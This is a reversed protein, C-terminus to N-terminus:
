HVRQLRLDIVKAVTYITDHNPNWAQVHLRFFRGFGGEKKFGGPTTEPFPRWDAGRPADLSRGKLGLDPDAWFSADPTRGPFGPALYFHVTVEGRDWRKPGTKRLRFKPITVLHGGYKDARVVGSPYAKTFQAVQENFSLM